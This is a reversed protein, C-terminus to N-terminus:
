NSSPSSEIDIGKKKKAVVRFMDASNEIMRNVDANPAWLNVALSWICLIDQLEHIIGDEYTM